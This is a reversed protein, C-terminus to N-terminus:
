EPVETPFGNGREAHASFIGGPDPFPGFHHAEPSQIRGQFFSFAQDDNRTM